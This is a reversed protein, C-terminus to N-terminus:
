VPQSNVMSGHGLQRKLNSSLASRWNPLSKTQGRMRVRLSPGSGDSTSGQVRGTVSINHRFPRGPGGDLIGTHQTSRGPRYSISGPQGGPQCMIWCGADAQICRPRTTLLFVAVAPSRHTLQIHNISQVKSVKKTLVINQTHKTQCSFNGPCSSCAALGGLFSALGLRAKMQFSGSLSGQGRM